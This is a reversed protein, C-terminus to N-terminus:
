SPRPVAIYNSIQADRSGLEPAMLGAARAGDQPLGGDVARPQLGAASCGVCLRTAPEATRSQTLPILATM